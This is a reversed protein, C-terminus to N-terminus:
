QLLNGHLLSDVHALRSMLQSYFRRYSASIAM